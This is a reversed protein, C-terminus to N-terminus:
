LFPQEILLNRYVDIYKKCTEKLSFYKLAYRYNVEGEKIRCLQQAQQLAVVISNTDEPNFVPNGVEQLLGRINGVNPGVVIKKFLFALPINGSNLIHKRQIFIVDSASIYYPLESNTILEENCGANIHLLKCAPIAIHYGLWSIYRKLRNTHKPHPSFPLLRPALLYKHKLKCQLFAKLVMSIEQNNRFKGFATIVFKKKTIGLRQRAEACSINEDYTGEYIHHPIIINQSTPHSALFQDQSYQGLHVIIDSESEIVRYAEDIISGSYHSRENHRTYVFRSGKSKLIDIRAKLKDVITSDSCNWGIVEEPWQFHIVDYFSNDQWFKDISCQIDTGQEQIGKLLTDVFLNDTEGDRFVMLIRM